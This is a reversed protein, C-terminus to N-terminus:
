LLHRRALAARGQFSIQHHISFYEYCLLLADKGASADFSLDKEYRGRKVDERSVSSLLLDQSVSTERKLRPPSLTTARAEFPIRNDSMRQTKWPFLRSSYLHTSSTLLTIDRLYRTVYRTRIVGNRGSDHM